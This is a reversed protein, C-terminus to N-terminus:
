TTRFKSKAKLLLRSNVEKVSSPWKKLKGAEGVSKSRLASSKLIAVINRLILIQIRGNHANLPNTRVHEAGTVAHLVAATEQRNGYVAIERELVPAFRATISPLSARYSKPTAAGM